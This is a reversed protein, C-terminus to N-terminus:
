VSARALLQSACTAHRCPVSTVAGSPPYQDVRDLGARVGAALDRAHLALGGPGASDLLDLELSIRGSKGQTGRLRSEATNLAGGPPRDHRCGSPAPQFGRERLAVTEDFDLKETTWGYRRMRAPSSTRVEFAADAAANDLAIFSALRARQHLDGARSGKRLDVACNTACLAVVM